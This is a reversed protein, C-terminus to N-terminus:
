TQAGEEADARYIVMQDPFLRPAAVGHHELTSGTFVAGNEGWWLPPRLGSPGSGILVPRLRYRREPRLGRFKLRAPPDPYVSDATGAAYIARSGDRAVVGHM